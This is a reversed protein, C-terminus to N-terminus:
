AFAALIFLLLVFGLLLFGVIGVALWCGRKKRRKVQDVEATCAACIPFERQKPGMCRPCSDTGCDFCLAFERRKWGGCEPCLNGTAALRERRDAAVGADHCKRCREASATKPGGCEPCVRSM